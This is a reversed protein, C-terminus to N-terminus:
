RSDEAECKALLRDFARCYAETRYACFADTDWLTDRTELALGTCGSQCLTRWACHRCSDIKEPRAMLNRCVEDMGASRMVDNLTHRNINGLLFPSDMMLVCPYIDGNAAVVVKQGLPCWWDDEAPADDPVRLMFGALGCSLVIWHTQERHANLAFDYFDTQQRLTLGQGITQWEERAMGMRRLPLFRVYPIGKEEALRIIAALDHVNRSMVTTSLNLRDSLGAKQLLDIARMVQAFTGEGRIADHIDATAGDLSLQVSVRHQGLFAAWREDILTGNSLLTISLRGSIHEIMDGLGHHLLPEGGSFTVTKGGLAAADDLVRLVTETPIHHRGPCAPHTTYCHLCHLNCRDTLHIFLSRLGPQRHRTPEMPWLGEERLLTRIHDVDHRAQAASAQYRITLQHVIQNPSDGMELRRVIFLGSRNVIAWRARTPHLVVFFRRSEDAATEDPYIIFSGKM